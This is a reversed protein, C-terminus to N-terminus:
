PLRAATKVPVSVIQTGVRFTAVGITTGAPAGAKPPRLAVSQHVTGGAMALVTAPAATTAAVTHGTATVQGVPRHAPAVPDAVVQAAAAKALALAVKGAADLVTPGQQSTVAALTVITRGGVATQYALVDGGGAASTYGSKVGIVGPTTGVLPTYSGVTGAVPLDVSPMRVISAFAPDAMAESALTLLDAATSTSGTSFGSADSFHSSRMGLAAADANMKAVFADVSGADWTALVYAFDNASHILLGELLQYETLVEGAQLEVSAQDTVTDIGFNDADATTVTVAPGQAGPALPHDHLVVYATMIKTLSAVPVAAEPGSQARFGVAPIAVAAQGTAPWPLAPLAGPTSRGPKSLAPGSAAAATAPVASTAAMTIRVTTAPAKAGEGSNALLLVVALAVAFLLLTRVLRRRRRSRRRVSPLAPALGNRLFGQVSSAPPALPARVAKATRVGPLPDAGEPGADWPRAPRKPPATSVASWAVWARQRHGPKRADGPASRGAPEALAM